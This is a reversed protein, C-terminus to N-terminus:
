ASIVPPGRRLARRALRLQVPETHQAVPLPARRWLGLAVPSPLAARLSRLAAQVTTILAIASREGSRLLWLTVLAAGLHSLWMLTSSATPALALTDALQSTTVFDAGLHSAHPNSAGGFIESSSASQTSTGIMAFSAHFLGQGVLVLTALRTISLRVGALAISLPLVVLVTVAVGIFSPTNGGALVHSFAAFVVAIVTATVGRAVRENRSLREPKM